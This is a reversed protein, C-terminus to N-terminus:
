QQSLPPSTHPTVDMADEPNPEDDEFVEDPHSLKDIERLVHILAPWTNKWNGLSLGVESRPLHNVIFDRPQVDQPLMPITGYNNKLEDYLITLLPCGNYHERAAAIAGCRCNKLPYSPLWHMRWKVLHHRDRPFAPLYLIPDIMRKARLCCITKKQLGRTIYEENRKQIITQNVAKNTPINEKKLKKYSQYFHNNSTLHRWHQDGKKNWLFSLEISRALTTVPLDQLRTVFKLQLTRTQIQISPLDALVMPVITPFHTSRNRNLAMKIWSKQANNLQEKQKASLKIIALGYELVPRISTRYARLAPWLGIGYQHIGIQRLLAMNSTAKTIRQNVLQESNIGNKHFPIGLYQFQNVRPINKGYLQFNSLVM